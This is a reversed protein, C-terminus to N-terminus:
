CFDVKTHIEKKQEVKNINSIYFPFYICGPNDPTEFFITLLTKTVTAPIKVTLSSSWPV